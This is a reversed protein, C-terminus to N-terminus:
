PFGTRRVRFNRLLRRLAAPEAAPQLATRAGAWRGRGGRGGGECFPLLLLQLLQLLLPLLPLLLLLLLLVCHGRRARGPAARWRRRVLIERQACVEDVVRALVVALQAADAQAAVAVVTVEDDEAIAAVHRHVLAAVALCGAEAGGRHQAVHAVFGASADASNAAGAIARAAAYSAAAALTTSSSNAAAVAATAAALVRM